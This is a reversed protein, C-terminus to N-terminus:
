VTYTQTDTQKTSCIVHMVDEFTLTV